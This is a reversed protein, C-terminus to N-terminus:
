GSGVCLYINVNCTANSMFNCGYLMWLKILCTITSVGSIEQSVRCRCVAKHTENRACLEVIHKNGCFYSSVSPLATSNMIKRM